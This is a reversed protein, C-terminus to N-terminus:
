RARDPVDFENVGQLVLDGKSIHLGRTSGPDLCGYLSHRFCGRAHLVHRGIVTNGYGVCGPIRIGDGTEGPEQNGVRGLVGRIALDQDIKKLPHQLMLILGARKVVSRQRRRYRLLDTGGDVRELLATTNNQGPLSKTGRLWRVMIKKM